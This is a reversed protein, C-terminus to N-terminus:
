RFPQPEKNCIVKNLIETLTLKNTGFPGHRSHLEYLIIGFSYVDGKQTGSPQSNLIFSAQLRLLEPAKYLLALESQLWNCFIIM